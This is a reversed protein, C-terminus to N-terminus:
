AASETRRSRKEGAEKVPAAVRALTGRQVLKVLQANDDLEHGPLENSCTRPGIFLSVGSNLRVWIPKDTLNELKAAM